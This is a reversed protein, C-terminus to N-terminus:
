IAHTRVAEETIPGIGFPRVALDSQGRYVTVVEHPRLGTNELAGRFEDTDHLWFRGEM